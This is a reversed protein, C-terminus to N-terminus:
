STGGEGCTPPIFGGIRNCNACHCRLRNVYGRRRTRAAHDARTKGIHLADSLESPAPFAPREICGCGRMCFYFAYSITVVTVGPDGPMGRAITNRSIVHDGRHDPKTTVTAPPISGASKFALTSADPGCSKATRSIRAEDLASERGDCGTGREHRDRAARRPVPGFREIATELPADLLIESIGFDEQGSKATPGPSVFAPGRPCGWGVGRESRERPAVRGVLPLSLSGRRPHLKRLSMASSECVWVEAIESRV